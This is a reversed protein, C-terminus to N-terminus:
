PLHRPQMDFQWHGCNMSVALRFWVVDQSIRLLESPETSPQLKGIYPVIADYVIGLQSATGEYEPTNDAHFEVLPRKGSEM